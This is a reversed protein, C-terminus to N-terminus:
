RVWAPTCFAKILSPSIPMLPLPWMIISSFFLSSMAATIRAHSNFATGAFLQCNKKAQGTVNPALRWYGDPTMGPRAWLADFVRTFVSIPALGSDLRLYQRRFQIGPGASRATGSHGPSLKRISLMRFPNTQDKRLSPSVVDSGAAVRRCESQSSRRASLPM